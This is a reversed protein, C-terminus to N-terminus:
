RMHKLLETAESNKQRQERVTMETRCQIDFSVTMKRSHFVAFPERVITRIRQCIVAGEDESYGNIKLRTDISIRVADLLAFKPSLLLQRLSHLHAFPFLDFDQPTATNYQSEAYVVNFHIRRLANDSPLKELLLFFPDMLLCGATPFGLSKFRAIVSAPLPAFMAVEFSISELHSLSLEVM